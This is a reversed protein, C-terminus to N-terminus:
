CSTTDPSSPSRRRRPLPLLSVDIGKRRMYQTIQPMPPFGEEAAVGASAVQIRGAEIDEAALERFYGEAMVSRCINGTCVFAIKIM